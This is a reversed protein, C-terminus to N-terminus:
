LSMGFPAFTLFIRAPKVGKEAFTIHRQIRICFFCGGYADISTPVRAYSTTTKCFGFSTTPM